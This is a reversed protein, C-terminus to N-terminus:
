YSNLLEYNYFLPSASSFESSASSCNSSGILSTEAITLSKSFTFLDNMSRNTRVMGVNCETRFLALFEEYSIKGNQEFDAEAILEDVKEAIYNMGLIERLNKKSIYGSNDWDLRDFAEALREEDIYGLIELTAALFETYNVLGNKDFDLAKFMEQIDEDSYDNEYKMLAWKFESYSIYGNNETDYQDFVKRLDVIESTTSNHAILMLAMKKIMPAKMYQKITKPVQEMIADGPYRKSLPYHTKLWTHHMAENASPRLNPNKHFLSQIFNKADESIKQWRTDSFSYSCNMIRSVLSLRNRGFFPARSSLLMFAVVGTSWLDAKSTCKRNLVEPSMTYITGIAGSVQPSEPLYKTSLGFDILKVEADPGQNEFMINEYKIDRHIINRSHMYTLASLVKGVISAAQSETYPDRSYLDGGSCLEMVVFLQRNQTSEFVEIPKVINPHDLSKLIEVENRLEKLFTESIKNLQITKLAFTHSDEHFCWPSSHGIKMTSGFGRYSRPSGFSSNKSIHMSLELNPASTSSHMSCDLPLNEEGSIHTKVRHCSAAQSGFGDFAGERKKAAFVSGMSGEGIIKEIEYRKEFDTTWGVREQVM